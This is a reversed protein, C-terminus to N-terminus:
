LLPQPHPLEVVLANEPGQKGDLPSHSTYSKDARKEEKPDIDTLRGSAAERQSFAVRCPFRAREILTV